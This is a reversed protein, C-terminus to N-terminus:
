MSGQRSDQWGCHQECRRAVADADSGFLLPSLCHCRMTKGSCFRTSNRQRGTLAFSLQSQIHGCCVALPASCDEDPDHGRRPGHIHAPVGESRAEAAPVPTASCVHVQQRPRLPLHVRGRGEVANAPDTVELNTPSSYPSTGFQQYPEVYQSGLRQGRGPVVRCIRGRSM